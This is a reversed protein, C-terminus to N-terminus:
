TAPEQSLARVLPARYEPDKENLHMRRNALDFDLYAEAYRSEDEPEFFIKIKTIGDSLATPDGQLAIAACRISHRMAAPALRTGYIADLATVFADSDPGTSELTIVGSLLVV